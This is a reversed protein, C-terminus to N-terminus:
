PSPFSDMTTRAPLKRDSKYLLLRIQPPPMHSLLGSRLQQGRHTGAEVHGTEHATHCSSISSGALCMSRMRSRSLSTSM